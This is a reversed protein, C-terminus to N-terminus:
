AEYNMLRIVAYLLDKEEMIKNIENWLWRPMAAEQSDVPSHPGENEDVVTFVDGTWLQPVHNEERALWAAVDPKELWDKASIQICRVLEIHRKKEPEPPDPEALFNRLKNRFVIMEDDSLDMAKATEDFTTSDQLSVRAIELCAILDTKSFVDDIEQDM